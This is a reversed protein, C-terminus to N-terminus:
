ERRLGLEGEEAPVVLVDVLAHGFMEGRFLKREAVEHERSPLRGREGDDVRRDSEKRPRHAIMVARVAVREPLPSQRRRAVRTRRLEASKTNGFHEQRTIM